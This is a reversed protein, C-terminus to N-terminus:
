SPMTSLFLFGLFKEDRLLRWWLLLCHPNMESTGRVGRRRPCEILPQLPYIPVWFEDHLSCCLSLFSKSHWFNSYWDPSIVQHIFDKGGFFSSKVKSCLIWLCVVCIQFGGIIGASWLCVLSDQPLSAQTGPEGLSKVEIFFLLLTQSCLQLWGWAEVHISMCTYTCRYVFM